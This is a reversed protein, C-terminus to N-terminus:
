KLFDEECKEYEVRSDIHQCHKDALRESACSRTILLGTLACVAIIVMPMDESM